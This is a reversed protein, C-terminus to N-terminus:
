RPVLETRVAERFADIAPRLGPGKDSAAALPQRELLMRARDNQAFVASTVGICAQRVDATALLLVPEQRSVVKTAARMAAARAAVQDTRQGAAISAELQHWAMDYNNCARLYRTYSDIRSDRLWQREEARRNLRVGYGVGALAGAPAVVVAFIQLWLPVSSSM